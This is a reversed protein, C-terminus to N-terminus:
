RVTVLLAVDIQCQFSITVRLTCNWPVTEYVSQLMLYHLPSAILHAMGVNYGNTSCCVLIHNM